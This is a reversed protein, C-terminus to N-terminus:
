APKYGQFKSRSVQCPIDLERLIKVLIQQSTLGARSRRINAISTILSNDIMKYIAELVKKDTLRKKEVYEKIADREYRKYLNYAEEEIENIVKSLSIINILEKFSNKGYKHLVQNFAEELIKETSPINIKGM